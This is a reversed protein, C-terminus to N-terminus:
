GHDLKVRMHVGGDFRSEGVHFLAVPADFLVLGPLRTPCPTHQQRQERVDRQSQVQPRKINRSRPEVGNDWRHPEHDGREGHRPDLLLPKISFSLM